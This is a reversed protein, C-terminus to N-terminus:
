RPGTLHPRDEERRGVVAVISGSEDFVLDFKDSPYQKRAEAMREAATTM